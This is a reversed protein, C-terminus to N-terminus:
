FPVIARLFYLSFLAALLFGISGFIIRILKHDLEEWEQKVISFFTVLVGKISSIRSNKIEFNEEEM